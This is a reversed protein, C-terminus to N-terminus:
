VRFDFKSKSYHIIKNGLKEFVEVRDKITFTVIKHKKFIDKM